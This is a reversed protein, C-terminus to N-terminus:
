PAFDPGEGVEECRDIDVALVGKVIELVKGVGIDFKGAKHAREAERALPVWGMELGVAKWNEVANLKAVEDCCEGLQFLKM